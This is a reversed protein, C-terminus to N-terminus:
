RIIQKIFDAALAQASCASSPNYTKSFKDCFGHNGAFLIATVQKKQELLPLIEQPEFSPENEAFLLLVPCKPEVALYDRIRSGYYGVVGDCLGEESCRWAITAGISFGVLLLRRYKKRLSKLLELVERYVDFGVATRFHEYAETQESYDFPKATGLLNPCYVDQGAQRYMECVGTIHCNIGYIEHLVVVATDSSNQYFLM